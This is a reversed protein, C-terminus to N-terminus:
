DLLEATRDRGSVRFVRATWNPTVNDVYGKLLTAGGGSGDNSGIIEVPIPSADCWYGISVGPGDMPFTASFSDSSQFRHVEINAELVQVLGGGSSIWCNPKRVESM